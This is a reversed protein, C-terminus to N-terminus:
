KYPNNSIEHEISNDICWLEWADIPEYIVQSDMYDIYDNALGISQEEQGEHTNAWLINNLIEESLNWLAKLAELQPHAPKTM